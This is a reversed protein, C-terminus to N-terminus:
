FLSVSGSRGAQVAQHFEEELLRTEQRARELVSRDELSGDNVFHAFYLRYYEREAAHVRDLLDLINFDSM